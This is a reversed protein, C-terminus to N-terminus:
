AKPVCFWLHQMKGPFGSAKPAFLCCQQEQWNSQLKSRLLVRHSMPQFVRLFSEPCHTHSQTTAKRMSKLFFSGGVGQAFFDPMTAYAQQVALLSLCFSQPKSGLRYLMTPSLRLFSFPSHAYSMSLTCAQLGPNLGWCHFLGLLPHVNRLRNM